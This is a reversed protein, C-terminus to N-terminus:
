VESGCLHGVVSIVALMAWIDITVVATSTVAPVWKKTWPILLLMTVHLMVLVAITSWFWAYARLRWKVTLILVFVFVTALVPLTLEPRGMHYFLLGLAITSM